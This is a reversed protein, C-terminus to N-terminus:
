KWDPDTSDSALCIRRRPSLAKASYRPQFAYSSYRSSDKSARTAYSRVEIQKHAFERAGREPSHSILISKRQILRASRATPLSCPGGPFLIPAIVRFYQKRRGQLEFRSPLYRFTSKFAFWATQKQLQIKLSDFAQAARLAALKARRMVGAGLPPPVQLEELILAEQFGAHRATIARFM